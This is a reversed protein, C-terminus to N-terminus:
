PLSVATVHQPCDSQHTPAKPNEIKSQSILNLSLILLRHDMSSPCRPCVGNGLVKTPVAYESRQPKIQPVVLSVVVMQSLFPDIM